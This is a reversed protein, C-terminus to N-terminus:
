RVPSVVEAARGAHSNPASRPWGTPKRTAEVSERPFRWAIRHDSRSNRERRDEGHWLADETDLRRRKELLSSECSPLLSTQNEIIEDRYAQADRAHPPLNRESNIIMLPKCYANVDRSRMQAHKLAQTSEHDEPKGNVGKVDIVLLPQKDEVRVDERPNRTGGADEFEEDVDIVLKFGLTKLSHIVAQVLEDGTGKLLLYWDSQSHRESEIQADIDEIRRKTEAQLEARQSILETVKPIEYRPDSLWSHQTCHPFLEPRFRPLWDRLMAEILQSKKAVQPLLITCLKPNDGGGSIAAAVCKGWKNIALPQWRDSQSYDPAIDVEYESDILYPRLFSGFAGTQPIIEMEVGFQNHWDLKKIEEVFDWNSLIIQKGYDDKVDSRCGKRYEVPERSKLFVIVLGCQHHIIRNLECAAYAMALPRPDILGHALLQWIEEKSYPPSTNPKPIAVSEPPTLDIFIVEQEPLNPLSLGALDIVAFEDSPNVTFPTGFTGANVNYGALILQKTCAEPLDVLLVKPRPFQSNAVMNPKAMKEQRKSAIKRPM